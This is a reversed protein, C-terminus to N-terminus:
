YTFIPYKSKRMIDYTEHNYETAIRLDSIAENQIDDADIVVIEVVPNSAPMLPADCVMSIVSTQM